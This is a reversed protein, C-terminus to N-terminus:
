GNKKILMKVTNTPQAGKDLWYQLKKRDLKILIPETMPSYFGLNDIFKGDRVSRREAVVIRYHSYGKKGLRSLRIKIM